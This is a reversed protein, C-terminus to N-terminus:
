NGNRDEKKYAEALYDDHRASVDSTDSSFRGAAELAKRKRDRPLQEQHTRYFKIGERILQSVSIGMARAKARLWEMQEEELQIQTRLM